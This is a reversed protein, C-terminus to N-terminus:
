KKPMGKDRRVKRGEEITPRFAKATWELNNVHNNERNGDIHQVFRSNTQNPIFAQAVLRHVYEGTPIGLMKPSSPRGKWFQNVERESIFSMDERFHKVKVNGHDSIFWQTTGLCQTKTGNKCPINYTIPRTKFLVWNQNIQAM